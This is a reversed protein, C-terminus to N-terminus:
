WSLWLRRWIPNNFDSKYNLGLDIIQVRPNLPFFCESTGHDTTIVSVEYGHDVLYNLKTSLVREVGGSGYLQPTCYLLEM